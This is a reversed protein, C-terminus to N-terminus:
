NAVEVPANPAEGFSEPAYMAEVRTPPLAFTGPNNLRVTYEIVHKGRPLYEYYSRFAEFSREEYAPWGSGSRKEGSAAIASDRGLGSGLITAGGPVPDSVVVWTMDSQADIELRVRIVDGRSWRSKDKQEVATVSRAVSYGARIPAKLPVAALSQVTLWPKGSGDQTVNLTGPGAPWALKVLGGDASRSWDIAASKDALTASTRGAVQTSEFKASFKDLALSGWLNATTTLWAGNRQRGLAGVVMRPLDDRWAPDDLVALILRAANADASDMLWWWFDDDENSFKLTTGAYTLRSRLIQNAEDLRKAQNPIGDVRKLIDLWDILAATPWVNPTLNISGLMKPQARGHRALAGIAALKRVDLDHRKAFEPSWFKREIRGQVFASLGDLMADRASAPLEFGAEHTAALVYATLRDSGRPGDEARPPFYSALGDSDLYTPLSNAVTAWLKADKLGVAKSTKQELCVFPYTEFYRRMGPLAGTLKPQVGIALGGRKITADTGAIPLADAPAAVPLAVPGDLQQLTAQLVRVPVAPSVLQSVKLRDKAGGSEEAAGEWAISFVDAPVDIPWLLEKASGAALTIEQPPLTIPTRVFESASANGASNATGQLTARVKMERQTTNRVTLMASYRDGDRVLPPLGSLLQLDQTVRISTSGTGFQQVGSDAIAVLRFSTLSDNLPVEVIAEGNADLALNPKWVLLTDFLERASGRGGGGGAAVAKRGYHRRGIIESQATSTEVGWARQQIMTNLLDWSDNNRLALLGEDVAAFAVETGALPKGDFLVKVKAIAKGRVSYQPKDSTVSVKLEHAATGVKLAA